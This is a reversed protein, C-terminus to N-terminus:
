KINYEPFENSHLNTEASIGDTYEVSGEGLRSPRFFKRFFKVLTAPILESILEARNNTSQM